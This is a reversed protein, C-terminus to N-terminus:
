RSRTRHRSGYKRKYEHDHIARIPANIEAAVRGLAKEALDLRGSDMWRRAADLRMGANALSQAGDWHGHKSDLVVSLKRPM